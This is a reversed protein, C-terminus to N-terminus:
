SFRRKQSALAVEIFEATFRFEVQQLGGGSAM